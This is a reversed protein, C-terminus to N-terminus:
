PCSAHSSWTRGWFLRALGSSLSIWKGQHPLGLLVPYVLSLSVLPQGVIGLTKKPPNRPHQASVPLYSGPEGM